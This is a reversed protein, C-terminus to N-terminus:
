SSVNIQSPKVDAKDSSIIDSDIAMQSDDIDSTEMMMDQVVEDYLFGDSTAETEIDFNGGGTHFIGCDIETQSNGIGVPVLNPHEAILEWMELFWPCVTIIEAVSYIGILSNCAM